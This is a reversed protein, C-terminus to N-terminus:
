YAFLGARGGRRRSGGPVSCVGKAVDPDGNDGVRDHVKAPLSAPEVSHSSFPPSRTNKRSHSSFAGTGLAGTGTPAKSAGGKLGAKHAYVPAQAWPLWQLRMGSPKAAVDCVYYRTRIISISFRVFYISISDCSARTKGSAAAACGAASAM